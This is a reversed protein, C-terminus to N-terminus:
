RSHCALSVRRLREDKNSGAAMRAYQETSEQQQTPPHKSEDIGIVRSRFQQTNGVRSTVICQGVRWDLHQEHISETGDRGDCVPQPHVLGEPFASVTESGHDMRACHDSGLNLQCVSHLDHCACNKLRTTNDLFVADDVSAGTDVMVTHDMSVRVNRWSRDQTAVDMHAQARVHTGSRRHNLAHVNARVADDSRPCNNKGVYWFATCDDSNRGSWDFYLSLVIEFVM